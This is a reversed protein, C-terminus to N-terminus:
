AAQSTQSDITKETRKTWVEAHSGVGYFHKREGARQFGFRELRLRAVENSAELEAYLEEVGIQEAYRMWAGYLANAAKMSLAAITRGHGRDAVGYGILHKETGGDLNVPEEYVICFQGIEIAQRFAIKPWPHVQLSKELAVIKDLDDIKMARIM